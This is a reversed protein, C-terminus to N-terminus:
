KGFRRQRKSYAVIAKNLDRKNFAPWYGTFFYLEAYAAQWILFNSIRQEKGTRIIMDLDSAWLNKSILNETIKKAPVRKKVINKVAQVIEGRGGYSMALNLTIKKNKRTFKEIKKISEQVFRPLREKEGIVRVRVGKKAVEKLDVSTAKKLLKMLYAVEGKSRKWNETSFVFLTLTKIGKEKCWQVVDKMKRLGKRHGEFTPLGRERAWRRNGDIIIGLHKPIKKIRKKM